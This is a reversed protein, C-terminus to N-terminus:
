CENFKEMTHPQSQCASIFDTSKKQGTDYAFTFQSFMNGINLYDIYCNFTSPGVFTNRLM